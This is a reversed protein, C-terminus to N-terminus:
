ADALDKLRKRCEAKVNPLLLMTTRQKRPRNTRQMRERAKARSTRAKAKARATKARARARRIRESSCQCRHSDIHQQTRMIELIEKQTNTTTM